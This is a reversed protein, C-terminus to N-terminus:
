PTLTPEPEIPLNTCVAQYPMADGIYQKWEERTLNRPMRLCADLILDEPQWIWMHTTGDDSGSVVYKNDPSFGVIWVMGDHLVSAIERGTLADWLRATKDASGTVIRKGDPSFAVSNTYDDHNMRAIETGSSMEWIITTTYGSAAIFKGDPSFALADIYFDHTFRTIEKGTTAEWLQVANGGASAVSKGDPSLQQKSAETM